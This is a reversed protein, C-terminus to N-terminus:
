GVIGALLRDIEDLQESTMPLYPTTAMERLTAEGMAALMTEDLM